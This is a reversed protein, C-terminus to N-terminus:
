KKKVVVVSDKKMKDCCKKEGEKCEGKGEECEGKEEDCEMKEKCCSKMMECEGDGGRMFMMHRMGGYGMGCHGMGMGGMRMGCGEMERCEERERCGHFVCRMTCCIMSCFSVVIVFWAVVKFFTNLNEKQTKYLLLTGSTLSLLLLAIAITPSCNM